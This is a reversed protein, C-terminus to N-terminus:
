FLDTKPETGRKTTSITSQQFDWGAKILQTNLLFMAIWLM